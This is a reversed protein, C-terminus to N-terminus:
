SVRSEITSIPLFLLDHLLSGDRELMLNEIVGHGSFLTRPKRQMVEVFISVTEYNKARVM